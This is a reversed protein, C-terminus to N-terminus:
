NAVEQAKSEFWEQVYKGELGTAISIKNRLDALTGDLSIRASTCFDNQGYAFKVLLTLYTICISRLMEPAAAILKANTQTEISKGPKEVDDTGVVKARRFVNCIGSGVANYVNMDEIDFIWPSPTHKLQKFFEAVAETITM